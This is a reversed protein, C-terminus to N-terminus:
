KKDSCSDHSEMVLVGVAISYRPEVPDRLSVTLTNIPFDPVEPDGFSFCPIKYRAFPAKSNSFGLTPGFVKPDLEPLEKGNMQVRILQKTELETTKDITKERYGDDKFVNEIVNIVIGIDVKTAAGVTFTADAVNLFAEQPVECHPTAKALETTDPTCKLQKAREQQLGVKFLADLLPIASRMKLARLDDQLKTVDTRLRSIELLCTDLEQREMKSPLPNPCAASAIAISLILWITTAASHATTM